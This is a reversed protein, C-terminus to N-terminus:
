LFYSNELLIKTLRMLGNKPDVIVQNIKQQLQKLAFIKLLFNIQWHYCERCTLEMFMKGSALAKVTDKLILLLHMYKM